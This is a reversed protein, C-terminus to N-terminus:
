KQRRFKPILRRIIEKSRENLNKFHSSDAYFCLATHIFAREQTSLAEEIKTKAVGVLLPNETEVTFNEGLGKYYKTYEALQDDTHCVRVAAVSGDEYRLVIYVTM